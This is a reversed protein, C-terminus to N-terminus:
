CFRYSAKSVGSGTHWSLRRLAFHYVWIRFTVLAEVVPGLCLGLLIGLLLSPYHWECIGRELPLFPEPIPCVTSSGISDLLRLVLALSGGAGVGGTLARDMLWDIAATVDRSCPSCIYCIYIYIFLVPLNKGLSKENWMDCRVQEKLKEADRMASLLQEVVADMTIQRVFAMPNLSLTSSGHSFVLSLVLHNLGHGKQSPSFTVRKSLNLSRWSSPLFTM